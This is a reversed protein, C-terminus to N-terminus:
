VGYYCRLWDDCNELLEDFSVIQFKNSNIVTHKERWRLRQQEQTTLDLNKGIIIVCQFEADRNGFTVEFDPTSRIGDLKWLWDTLQSYAKEL